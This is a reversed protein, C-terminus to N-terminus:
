RGTNKIPTYCKVFMQSADPCFAYGAGPPRFRTPEDSICFAVPWMMLIPNDGPEKPTATAYNLSPPVFINTRNM